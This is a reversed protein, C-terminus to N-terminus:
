YKRASVSCTYMYPLFSYFSILIESCGCELSRHVIFSVTPSNDWFAYSNISFHWCNVCFCTWTAVPKLLDLKSLLYNYLWTYFYCTNM